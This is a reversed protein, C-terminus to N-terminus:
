ERKGFRMIRGQNINREEWKDCCMDQDVFDARHESEDNFCVSTFRDTLWRCSYCNKGSNKVLDLFENLKASIEDETNM